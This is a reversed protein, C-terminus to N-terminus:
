VHKKDNLTKEVDMVDHIESRSAKKWNGSETEVQMTTDNKYQKEVAKSLTLPVEVNKEQKEEEYFKLHNSILYYFLGVLIALVLLLVVINKLTELRASKM